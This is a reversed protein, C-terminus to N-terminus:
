EKGLSEGEFRIRHRVAGRSDAHRAAGTERLSRQQVWQCAHYSYDVTKM